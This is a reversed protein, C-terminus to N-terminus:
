FPSVNGRIDVVLVSYYRNQAPPTLEVSTGTTTLLPILLNDRIDERSFPQDAAYLRYEGIQATSGDLAEVVPDWALVVNGPTVQSWAVSLNTRRPLESGLGGRNGDEGVARVRYHVDGPAAAMGPDTWSPCPAPCEDIKVLGENTYDAGTGRFIEYLTVTTPKGFVDTTVAPWELVLDADQRKVTLDPIFAPARLGLAEVPFDSAEDSLASTLGSTNTASVAVYYMVGEDLGVLAGFPGKGVQVTTTDVGPEGVGPETAFHLTHYALDDEDPADWNLNLQAGTGVDTLVLGTPAGPPFPNLPTADLCDPGDVGCDSNFNSWGSVFGEGDRAVVYYYYTTANEASADVFSSGPVGNGVKVYFPNQVAVSATRWVDYVAGPTPSETWSLTVEGNGGTAEVGTVPETRRLRLRQAPDGLLVYNQCGEISGQSCLRVLSGLVPIAVDRELRNGFLSGWVEPIVAESIFNFSAGSPSYVGVAAGDENRLWNEGMSNDVPRHFGGTLCNLAVMWTLRDANLLDSSDFPPPLRDDFFADNSWVEFNGHGQFQTVAAGDAIGDSGNIGNKIAQRMATIPNPVNPNQMFDTYYRLHTAIYPTPMEDVAQENLMEFQEAEIFDEPDAGRDSVFLARSTWSGDPATTEYDLAKALMADAQLKTRAPLRGIVLDPVPDDGIVTTLVNDSAYYGIELLDRFVIQTPVYDGQAERGKYDYSADGILLVLSPKGHDPGNTAWGEGPASSTAFRVMERIATPGYLGHNFEDEVDRISAVKATLGGGAPSARHDLLAQLPDSAPCAAQPDFHCPDVLSPHAIVILDAQISGDRLDSVTDAEVDPAVPALQAGAGAVVFRRLEGDTVAPDDDIRFSVTYPPSAGTVGAGTLRVPAIVDSGDRKTIEWVRVVPSDFGAIEFQTTAGDPWDFRLEDGSAVFARPYDIEIWDPMVDNPVNTPSTVCATQGAGLPLAEMRVVAPDALAPGSGPWSWSLEHLALTRGDFMLEQSALVNTGDTLSVRTHHDPNVVNDDVVCYPSLGRLLVRLDVPGAGAVFGPLAVSEVRLDNTPHEGVIAPGWFWPDSGGLPRWADDAEAHSTARFSLPPSCTGCSPAADQEPLAAAAGAGILFYVNEDTFDRAVWIDIPGSSDFNLETKPEDDLAQGWFLIAEGPELVDDGDDTTEFPVEVGRNELRWSSIPVAGFGLPALVAEELRYLGTQRVRVRARVSTGELAGAATARAGARPAAAELSPSRSLRFARGQAYNVFADRYVAEFRPDAAAPAAGVEGGPFRVSVEIGDHVLLEASDRDFRVPALHVEVYRQDRFVGTRGLWAVQEPWAGPAGYVAEDPAVRSAAARRASQRSAPAMREGRRGAPAPVAPQRARTRGPDVELSPEAGPPIAVWVTATPLDPYGERREIVELGRGEIRVFGDEDALTSVVPARLRFRVHEATAELTEVDIPSAAFTSAPALLLTLLIPVSISVSFRRTSSTMHDTGRALPRPVTGRAASGM